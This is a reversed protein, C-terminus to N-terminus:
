FAKVINTPLQSVINDYVWCLAVVRLLYLRFGQIAKSSRYQRAVGARAYGDVISSSLADPAILSQRM